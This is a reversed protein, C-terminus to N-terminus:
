DIKNFRWFVYIGLADLVEYLLSIKIDGKRFASTITTSHVGTRQAVSAVTYKSENIYKVLGNLNRANPYTEVPSEPTIEEPNTNVPYFLKLEYGYARAFDEARSLKMDDRRFINSVAQPTTGIREAVQEIAIGNPYIGELFDILEELNKGPWKKRKTKVANM